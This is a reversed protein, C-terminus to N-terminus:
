CATKAKGACKHRRCNNVAMSHEVVSWTRPFVKLFTDQFM